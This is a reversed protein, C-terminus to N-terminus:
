GKELCDKLYAKLAELKERSMLYLPKNLLEIGPKLPIKYAYKTLELLGQEVLDRFLALFQAAYDPPM